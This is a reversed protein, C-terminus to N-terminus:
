ITIVQFLETRISVARTFHHSLIIPRRLLFQLEEVSHLAQADYAYVFM